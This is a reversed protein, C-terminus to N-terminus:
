PHHMPSQIGAGPRRVSDAPWSFRRGRDFLGAVGRQGAQRLRPPGAPARGTALFRPAPRERPSVQERWRSGIVYESYGEGAAAMGSRSRPRGRV